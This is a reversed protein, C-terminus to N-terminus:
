IEIGMGMPNGNGHMCVEVVNYRFADRISLKGQQLLYRYAIHLPYIFITPFTAVNVTFLPANFQSSVTSVLSTTVAVFAVGALLMLMLGGAVRRQQATCRMLKRKRRCFLLLETLSRKWHSGSTGSTLEADDAAGAAADTVHKQTM